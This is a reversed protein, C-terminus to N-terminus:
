QNSDKFRKKGSRLTQCGYISCFQLYPMMHVVTIIEMWNAALRHMMKMWHQSNRNKGKSTNNDSNHFTKLKKIVNLKGQSDAKWKISTTKFLIPISRHATIFSSPSKFISKTLDSNLHEKQTVIQWPIDQSEAALPNPCQGSWKISPHSKEPVYNLGKLARFQRILANRSHGNIEPPLKSHFALRKIEDLLELDHFDQRLLGSCGGTIVSPQLSQM